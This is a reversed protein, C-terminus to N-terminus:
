PTVEGEPWIANVFSQAEAYTCPEGVMLFFRFGPLTVQWHAKRAQLVQGEAHSSQSRFREPAHSEPGHFVM